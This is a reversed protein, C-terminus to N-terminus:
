KASGIRYPSRNTPLSSAVASRLPPTKRTSAIWSSMGNVLFIVASTMRSILSRARQSRNSRLSGAHFGTGPSRVTPPVQQTPTEPGPRRAQAPHLHTPRGRDLFVTWNTPSTFSATTSRACSFSTTWRPRAAAAGTGSTTPTRGGRIGPVAQFVCGRDRAVLARRISGDVLRRWRGLDPPQGPGDFVIPVIGADCAMRRVTEPTVRDGNDLRGDGVQQKLVDFDVGLLLQPRDGGNRPLKTTALALRCVEVLADARRQEPARDDHATPKTLPAIAARVIAAGEATLRGSLRIGVEDPSMTFYRKREAQAEDREAAKRDLEDAVESVVISLIRDGVLRLLEPDLEACLRV